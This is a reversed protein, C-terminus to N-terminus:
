LSFMFKAHFRIFADLSYGGKSSRRFTKLPFLNEMVFQIIISKSKCGHKDKWTFYTKVIINYSIQSISYWDILIFRDLANHNQTDMPTIKMCHIQSEVHSTNYLYVQFSTKYYWTKRPKFKECPLISICLFSKAIFM